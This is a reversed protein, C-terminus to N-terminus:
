KYRNLIELVKSKYEIKNSEDYTAEIMCLPPFLVCWWNNGQSNGIKVVLSEYEGEEYEIGNMKKTPFYNNGYNIQYNNNNLTKSIIKDVDELNNKITVRAEEITNVNDIKKYLHTTINEKVKLKLLQDILSNSNAIVRIRISENPIIIKDYEKNIIITAIILSLIILIKKM